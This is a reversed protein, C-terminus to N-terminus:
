RQGLGTLRQTKKLIGENRQNWCYWEGRRVVHPPLGAGNLRSSLSQDSSVALFSLLTDHHLPPQTPKPGSSQPASPIRRQRPLTSRVHPATGGDWQRACFTPVRRVKHFQLHYQLSPLIGDRRTFTSTPSQSPDHLHKEFASSRAHYDCRIRASTLYQPNYGM